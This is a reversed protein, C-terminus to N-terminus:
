KRKLNREFEVNLLFYSHCFMMGVQNEASLLRSNGDPAQALLTVALADDTVRVHSWARKHFDAILAVESTELSAASDATTFADTVGIVAFFASM